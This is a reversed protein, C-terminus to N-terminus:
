ITQAVCGGHGKGSVDQLDGRSRNLGLTSRQLVDSTRRRALWSAAVRGVLSSEIELARILALKSHMAKWTGEPWCVSNETAQRRCISSATYEVQFIKINDPWKSCAREAESRIGLSALWFTGSGKTASGPTCVILLLMTSGGCQQLITLKRNRVVVFRTCEGPQM